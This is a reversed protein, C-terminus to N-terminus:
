PEHAALQLLPPMQTGLVQVCGVPEHQWASPDQVTVVWAAQEAVHAVPPMQTGLEQGCGVPAHQKPTVHETMEDPAQTPGL